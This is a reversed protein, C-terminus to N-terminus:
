RTVIKFLSKGTQYVCKAQDALNLKGGSEIRRRNIQVQMASEFYQDILSKLATLNYQEKDDGVSLPILCDLKLLERNHVLANNINEAKESTVNELDYPPDWEGLPKLGDVQNLVGIIAPQKRSRNKSDAYFEDLKNKFRTDLLRAPQNAKLVWIVLDSNTVQELLLKEHKDDGDLGPLDVLHITDIGELRCKHVEIGGTSPLKSVEALMGNTLSNILSSKGASVQGLLCIRLPDLTVAMRQQDKVAAQSQEIEDDTKFRGSYLDISVALVEQLLAQKLKIQLEKNVRGFAKSLLQGRAEAIWGVPSFIRYARYINWAYKAKDGSDFLVKLTSLNIKDVFPVHTKLIHRYRRSIEETLMLLEPASFALENGSSNKNYQKSTLTILELGHEKLDSWESSQELQQNIHEGLELWVQNDLVGWETSAKVLSDNLNAISAQHVEKRRWYVPIVAVVTSLALMGMFYLIYGSQYIAFLGFGVLVVLPFGIIALMVPIVGNSLRTAIKVSNITRKM